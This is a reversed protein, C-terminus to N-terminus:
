KEAKALQLPIELGAQYFTGQMKQGDVKAVYKIGSQRFLITIENATVKTEDMPIGMAGQAPSDMTSTYGGETKSINFVIPLEVGQTALTGEWSGTLNTDQAVVQFSLFFLILSLFRTSRQLTRRM